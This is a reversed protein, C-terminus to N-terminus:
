KDASSSVALYVYELSSRLRLALSLLAILWALGGAIFLWLWPYDFTGGHLWAALIRGLLLSASIFILSMIAYSSWYYEDRSLSLTCVGFLFAPLASFLSTLLPISM